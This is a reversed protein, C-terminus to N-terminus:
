NGVDNISGWMGFSREGNACFHKSNHSEHGCCDSRFKGNQGNIKSKQNERGIWGGIKGSIAICKLVDIEAKRLKGFYEDLKAYDCATLALPFVWHHKENLTMMEWEGQGVKFRDSGFCGAAGLKKVIRMGPLLETKGQILRVRAQRFTGNVM